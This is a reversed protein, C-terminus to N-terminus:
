TVKTSGCIQSIRTISTTKACCVAHELPILCRGGICTLGSNETRVEVAVQINTISMRAQSNKGLLFSFYNETINMSYLTNGNDDLQVWSRTRNVVKYVYPSQNVTWIVAGSPWQVLSISTSTVSLATDTFRDYYIGAVLPSTSGLPKPTWHDTGNEDVTQAYVNFAFLAILLALFLKKM